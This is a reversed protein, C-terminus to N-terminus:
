KKKNLLIQSYGKFITNSTDYNKHLREVNLILDHNIIISNPYDYHSKKPHGAYQDDIAVLKFTKVIKTLEPNNLMDRKYKITSYPTKDLPKNIHKM